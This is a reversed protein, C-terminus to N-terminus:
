DVFSDPIFNKTGPVVSYKDLDYVGHKALLEDDIFFQGKTGLLHLGFQRGISRAFMM